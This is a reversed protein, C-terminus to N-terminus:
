WSAEEVVVRGGPGLQVLEWTRVPACADV